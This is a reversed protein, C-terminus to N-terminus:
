FLAKSKYHGGKELESLLREKFKISLKTYFDKPEIRLYETAIDFIQIHSYKEELLKKCFNYFKNTEEITLSIRKKVDTTPIKDIIKKISNDKLIHEELEKICELKEVYDQEYNTYAPSSKDIEIKSNNKTVDADYYRNENYYSKDM